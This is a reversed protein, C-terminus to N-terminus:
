AVFVVASGGSHLVNSNYDYRSESEASSRSLYLLSLACSSVQSVVVFKSRQQQNTVTSGVNNKALDKALPVQSVDRVGRAIHGPQEDAM